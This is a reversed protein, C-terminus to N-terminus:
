RREKRTNKKIKGENEEKEHKEKKEMRNDNKLVKEGKGEIKKIERRKRKKGTERKNNKLVKEGKEENIEEEKRGNKMMEGM